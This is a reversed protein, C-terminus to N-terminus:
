SWLPPKVVMLFVIAVALVMLLVGLFTSRRAVAQYVPSEPVQSELTQIQRKLTLTYGFLCLLVLAGYLVLSTLLWPTTLTFNVLFVM